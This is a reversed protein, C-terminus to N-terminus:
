GFHLMETWTSQPLCFCFVTNATPFDIRSRPERVSMPSSMSVKPPPPWTAAPVHWTGFSWAWAVSSSSTSMMVWSPQCVARTLRAARSEGDRGLTRLSTARCRPSPARGGRRRRPVGRRARAGPRSDNWWGGAEAGAIAREFHALARPFDGEARAREGDVLEVRHAFNGPAQAALERLTKVSAEAADAHDRRQAPPLRQIALAAYQHFIPVHWTSVVGDLFPRAAELAASADAPSGFHYRVIATLLRVILEASRSGAAAAHALADAESFREDDLTAPDLKDGSFCRLVQEFPTHVHLANVQEHGRLLAGLALAEELLPSIERAAYFSNHVWAHAAYGVYELDGTERGVDVVARLDDLTSALPVTWVCVLDFVVHRTRAVMSKDDFRELLRLAVQGWTHAEHLMGITNLVIGYVALAYPTAPSLGREVSTAVLRCAIVPLLAPRAFYAASSIRGQVRMAAAVEPDTAPALAELGEPGVRALGDMARKLEEGIEAEGPNAPLEVHLLALAELAADVAASYETRAILADIQVERAVLQDLVTRGHAKVGAILADLADWSSSLYAAEAAGSHVALALEYDSTWADDGALRAGSRFCEFALEFAAARRARRGAELALRATERREPGVLRHEVSNLHRVADFIWGGHSALARGLTLHHDGVRDDDLYDLVSQRFRDHRLEVLDDAGAGTSRVFHSRSLSWLARLVGTEIGAVSFAVGLPIPNSAVSLVEILAREVDPLTQM